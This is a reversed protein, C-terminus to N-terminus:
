KNKPGIMPPRPHIINKEGFEKVTKIFLDSASMKIFSDYSFVHSEKIEVLGPLRSQLLKFFMDYEAVDRFGFLIIHTISTQPINILAIINPHSFIEKIEKKYSRFARPMIKVQTLAFCEIGISKYDLITEYKDLIGKSHLNKKIKGVAQTTINLKKSLEKNSILSNELISVLITKENKTLKM